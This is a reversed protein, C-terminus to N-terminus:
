PKTEKPCVSSIDNNVMNAMFGRASLAMEAMRVLLSGFTREKIVAEVAGSDMLFRATMDLVKQTETSATDWMNALVVLQVENRHWLVPRELVGVCILNKKWGGKLPHPAAALNGFDTGGLREREMVQAYFDEPM